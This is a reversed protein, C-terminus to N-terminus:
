SRSRVVLVPRQAHTILGGTVDGLLVRALGAGSRSSGLVILDYDGVESERLIEDGVIGRRLELEVLECQAQVTRLAWKVEKAQETDTQLFEAMTQEMRELGTYMIPMPDLVHLLTVQAGAGSAVDAGTQVPLRSYETGSSCILVRSLNPRDGKVVLVFSAAREISSVLGLLAHSIQQSDPAGVAVLDYTDRELETVVIQQPQNADIRVRATLGLDALEQAATDVASQLGTGKQGKKLVGLLTTDASLAKAVESGFRLTAQYQHSDVAVILMKM